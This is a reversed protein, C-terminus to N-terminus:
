GLYKEIFEDIAIFEVGSDMGGELVTRLRELGRGIGAEDMRGGSFTEVLHWSHTGMVLLGSESRRMLKLYDEPDRKGEHMAWLYSYIRKGRDDHSRTLPVELLGNPLRWPAPALDADDKTLSSDYEFGADSISGLIDDSVNLYPARFGSPKRGTLETLTEMSRELIFYVDDRSVPLGTKEGTLDEHDFGHSGIEHDELLEGLDIEKSIEIATRAELFFTGRIGLDDLLEVLLNLGRASSHFRPQAPGEAVMSSADIRGPMPLNVDRDVDVTFAVKNMSVEISPM